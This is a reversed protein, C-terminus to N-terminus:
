GNNKGILFLRKNSELVNETTSVTYELIKLEKEISIFSNYNQLFDKEVEKEKSLKEFKMRNMEIKASEYNSYASLGAGTSATLSLYISNNKSSDNSYISGDRQEGVISVTPFFSAKAIKVEERASKIKSDYKKLSPNTKLTSEINLEINDKHALKKVGINIDCTLKKGMLLELQMKATKFSNKASNIDSNIKSIRSIVLERDNDSSVGAKIRREVMKLFGNLEKKGKTLEEIQDKSAEYSYLVELINDVLNYKNEEFTVYAEEKNYKAKNYNADIRGGAWVPQTLKYVSQLGKKSRSLEISPTPFYNWFAGNLSSEAEKISEESMKMTPHSLFSEEIIKNVNYECSDSANLSIALGLSILVKKM